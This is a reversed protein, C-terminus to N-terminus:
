RRTLGRLIGRCVALFVNPPGPLAPQPVASYCNGCLLITQTRYYKRGSSVARSRGSSLWFRGHGSFGHRSSLSSRASGSTEGVEAKETWEIAEYRPMILGCHACPVTAYERGDKGIVTKNM